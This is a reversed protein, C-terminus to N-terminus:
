KLRWKRELGKSSGHGGKSGPVLCLLEIGQAGNGVTANCTLFGILCPLGLRIAHSEAVGLHLLVRGQVADDVWVHDGELGVALLSFISAPCVTSRVIRPAWENFLKECCVASPWSRGRRCDVLLDRGHSEFNIVM